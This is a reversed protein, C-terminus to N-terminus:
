LKGAIRGALRKEESSGAKKAFEQAIKAAMEEKKAHREGSHIPNKEMNTRKGTDQRDM